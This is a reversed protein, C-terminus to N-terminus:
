PIPDVRVKFLTQMTSFTDAGTQREARLHVTASAGANVKNFTNVSGAPPASILMHPPQLIGSRGLSRGVVNGATEGNLRALLNVVCDGNNDGTVISGGEVTVRYDFDQPPISVPCLTKTSVSSAETIAAPWYADGVKQTQVTVGDATDNVVLMKRAAPTGSFDTASLIIVTGDAGPSGKRQTKVEKYVPGVMGTAPTVLQWQTAVPSPDDHEIETVEADTQLVVPLGDDGKAFAAITTLGTAGDIGGPPAAAFIVGSNPDFDLPVLMLGMWRLWKRGNYDITQIENVPL